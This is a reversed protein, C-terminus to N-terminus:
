SDAGARGGSVFYGILRRGQAIVVQKCRIANQRFPQIAFAGSREARGQIMKSAAGSGRFGALPTKLGVFIWGYETGVITEAVAYVFDVEV